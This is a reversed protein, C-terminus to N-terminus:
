RQTPRRTSPCGGRSRPRARRRDLHGRRAAGPGHGRFPRQALRVPVTARVGSRVHRLQGGRVLGGHEGHHPAGELQGGRQGDDGRAQDHRRARVGRGGHLRHHEAPVATAHRDPQGAPHVARGEPIGRQVARRTRERPDGGPLRAARSWGTVLSSGYLPKFEDFDSGDVVRAIVERPDFPVKPDTPVLGLLEEPDYRPPEVVAHPAPGRKSWNLRSVIRRGLRIADHEDVAFYDALGSVRAHMEAGGLSEDDADEGTAMKVLPPGALFVKSREKIMVVYDSMGPVYAGGATSNGFVLSIVPIGAASLRTLDRFMAGGPIFIEKQTPLDAGGSETLNIMPLRNTLAIENARLVKKLSWPNSAGGKVTPDSASIMCEVGEVVGIGTVVSAGVHFDSGWAALGSLELFPADEDLLLEIRERVLMKGRDRHRDTYKPGLGAVASAHEADLDDIQELLSARNAAFSESRTDLTSTLVTMDPVGPDHPGPDCSCRPSRFTDPACGNASRRRRPTSVHTPPSGRAWSGRSSSTSRGSTRRARAPDGAPWRDRPATRAAARRHPHRGAVGVADDTRVWVGINASGGKDGSRALAVTGLPVVRHPADARLEASLPPAAAGHGLPELDAVTVPADIHIRAGDDLVVVHDVEAAALHHATFVGYPSGKSPPATVHFGPYSALALEIAAGSFARGVATPDDSRVVCHLLASAEQETTADPHDTRALTWTIDADVAADMQSRVLAAKAEIELGTLVFVVENRYGGLTNLGVKLTPPPPEGVAGTIRM